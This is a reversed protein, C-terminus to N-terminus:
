SVSVLNKPSFRSGKRNCKIWREPDQAMFYHAKTAITNMDCQLLIGKGYFYKGTSDRILFVEAPLPFLKMRESTNRLHPSWDCKMHNLENRENWLKGFM